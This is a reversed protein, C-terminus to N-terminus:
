LEEEWKTCIINRGIKLLQLLTMNEMKMAMEAQEDTCIAALGWYEPSEKTIKELGLMVPARDTIMKGLKVIPERIPEDNKVSDPVFPGLPDTM